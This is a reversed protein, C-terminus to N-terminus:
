LSVPVARLPQAKVVTFGFKDDMNMKEPTIGGELKWDFSHILSGLMYPLMRNALSMGPCMRRGAGFPIFEFDGGKVDINSGLFREPEFSTAEKWLTEDRGMAWINVLVQANKPVTYECLDVDKVVKRPILFTVPPHLRLTETIVAELYPLRVIDEEKVPCGKGIVQELEAKAKTLKEPNHILEAMAWEFTTSTTDTGAVFLDLFLHPIDAVDFEKNSGQSISLIADLVDNNESTGTAKRSELRQHIIANFVKFMERVIITARRRIGQPDVMKLLPFFDAASLTGAEVVMASVLEQLENGSRSTSNPHALDLSFFINSLFNLSTTVSAQRIDIATGAECCDQVYSLLQQVNNRRLDKSAELRSNAFMYTKCVKRFSRWHADPPLFAVSSEHHDLVSVAVWPNRTSFSLDNKQLVQKAMPASSIVVTTLSGLQVAMAPGHVKALQALTRHPNTIHDLINGFIPFPFPGPPLRKRSLKTRRLLSLLYHISNWILLFYLLSSWFNM